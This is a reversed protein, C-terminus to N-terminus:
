TSIMPLNTQPIEIVQIPFTIVQIWLCNPGPTTLTAHVFVHAPGAVVRTFNIHYGPNRQQGAAVVLVTQSDFDVPPLNSCTNSINCLTENHWFASWEDPYNITTVGASAHGFENWFLTQFPVTGPLLLQKVTHVTPTPAVPTPLNRDVDITRVLVLGGIVLFV